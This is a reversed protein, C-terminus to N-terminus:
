GNGNCRGGAPGRSAPVAACLHDRLVAHHRSGSHANRLGMSCHQILFHEQCGRQKLTSRCPHKKCRQQRRQGM